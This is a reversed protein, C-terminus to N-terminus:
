QSFMYIYLDQGVQKDRNRVEQIIERSYKRSCRECAMYENGYHISPYVWIKSEPYIRGCKMCRYKRVKM